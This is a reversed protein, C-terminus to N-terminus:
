RPSWVYDLGIGDRAARARAGLTGETTVSLQPSFVNLGPFTRRVRASGVAQATGAARIRADTPAPRSACARRVAPSRRVASACASIGRSAYAPRAARQRLARRAYAPRAPSAFAPRVAPPQQAPHAFAFPWTRNPSRWLSTAATRSTPSCTPPSARQDADLQRQQWLGRDRLARCGDAATQLFLEAAPYTPTGATDFYTM